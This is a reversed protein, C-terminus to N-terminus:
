FAEGIGLYLASSRRGIGFDARLNLKEERDVVFRLGGGYSPRFDGLALRTSGHGVAGAGAFAVAGFRWAIPSRYEIQAAVLDRDRHLYPHYGRMSSAGGMTPLEQFPPTGRGSRAEAQAALGHSGPLSLYRRADVSVQVFRFDGGVAPDSARLLVELYSGAQTATVRDRTDLGAVMAPAVVLGGESGPITGPALQGEPDLGELTYQTVGFGGGVFGRRGVARRVRLAGGVTRSTYAERASMPLDSGIGYFSTPFRSYSAWATFRHQGGGWYRDTFAGATLQGKQTYVIAVEDTSPRSHFPSEQRHWRTRLVAGGGAWGTEPTRYLVPLPLFLHRPPTALESGDPTIGLPSPEQAPFAEGPEVAGPANVRDDIWEAVTDLLGPAYGPMMPELPGAKPMFAHCAAPFTRITVDPGGGRELAGAVLVANPDPPVMDDFEAFLALVPVQLAELAPIPDHNVMGCVYRLRLGRCVPAFRSALELQRDLRRISREIEDAPRGQREMVIRDHTLVQDRVTQGPGALLVVFAVDGTRSAALPVVYGGQSHGVLGIRVGDIEDRGQLFALAALADDTRQHLTERRWSGTSGGVGRKNLDLAAVGKSALHEALGPPNTSNMSGPLLIAAPHPGPGEPMLLRGALTAGDVRVRVETGSFPRGPEAGIAEPTAAGLAAAVGALVVASRGRTGRIAKWGRSVLFGAVVGLLGLGLAIGLAGLPPGASAFSLDDVPYELGRAAHTAAAPSIERALDRLLRDYPFGEGELPEAPLGRARLWDGVGTHGEKGVRGAVIVRDMPPASDFGWRPVLHLGHRTTVYGREPAFPLIRAAFTRPYTDTLAGLALEPAGDLLLLGLDPGRIFAANLLPTLRSAAPVDFSPDELFHLHRYGVRAAVAAALDEGIEQRLVHLVADIGSTIGASSVLNGDDVYRVGEVWRVEPHEERVLRLVNRHSTAWRGALLGTAAAVYSGGCITILRTEGSWRHRLWDELEAHAEPAGGEVYPLVILDPDRGVQEDYSAFTLHPLVDLKGPFLAHPRRERAVAYVNYTGSSALLEYPALFDTAETFGDGLLVVAVRGEPDDEPPSPQRGQPPPPPSTYMGDMTTRVGLGGVILPPLVFALSWLLPRLVWRHVRRAFTSM